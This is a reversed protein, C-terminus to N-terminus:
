FSTYSNYERRIIDAESTGTESSYIIYLEVKGEANYQLINRASFSDDEAYRLVETVRGAMDYETLLAKSLFNGSADHTLIMNIKDNSYTLESTVTTISEGFHDTRS